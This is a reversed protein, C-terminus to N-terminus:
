ADRIARVIATLASTITSAIEAPAANPQHWFRLEIYGDDEAIVDITKCGPRDLSARVDLVGQTEHVDASLGAARLEAALDWMSSNTNIPEPV